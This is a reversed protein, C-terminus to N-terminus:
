SKEEVRERSNDENESSTLAVFPSILSEVYSWTERIVPLKVGKRSGKATGEEYQEQALEYPDILKIQDERSVLCKGSEFVYHLYMDGRISFVKEWSDWKDPQKLMWVDSVFMYGDKNLSNFECLLLCGKMRSVQVESFRDLFNLLPFEKVEGSVLNLGAIRCPWIGLPLYLSDDVVVCKSEDCYFSFDATAMTLWERAKCSYIYFYVRCIDDDDEDEDDENNDKDDSLMFVIRYDDISSVYGFGVGALFVKSTHYDYDPVNVRQCENTAPNWLFFCSFQYYLCVLGNCSGAVECSYPSGVRYNPLNLEPYNGKLKVCKKVNNCNDFSLLFSPFAFRSKLVIAQTQCSSSFKLQLKQFDHSCIISLWNRSVSKFRILSKVPLRPLIQEVILHEPLIPITVTTKKMHVKPNHDNDGLMFGIRYDDISSVYGFGVGGLFCSAIHYCYDPVNVKQSQNTAPNWLFFCSYHYCLCVLGNCSGVVNCSYPPGFRYNPLSLAPYDNDKLEVCEKVNNCNDFSFLFCPFTHRNKIVIAQTQCSSSIKLHLKQFDHSCIVSLWSRSVSKFRILSKVPLRPLIQEEILHEPLVPTPVTKEEMKRRILG